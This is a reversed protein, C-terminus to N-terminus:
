QQLIKTWASTSILLYVQQKVDQDEALKGLRGSIPLVNNQKPSNYLQTSLGSNKYALTIDTIDILGIIAQITINAYSFDQHYCRFTLSIKQGTETCSAKVQKSAHQPLTYHTM